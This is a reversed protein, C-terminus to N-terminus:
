WKERFGQSLEATRLCGRWFVTLDHQRNEKEIGEDFNNPNRVDGRMIQSESFSRYLKLREKLITPWLSYLRDECKNAIAFEM